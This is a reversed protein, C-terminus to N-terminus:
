TDRDVLAFRYSHVMEGDLYLRVEYRGTPFGNPNTFTFAQTGAADLTWVEAAGQMPVGGHFLVQAWPVGQAMDEYDVWVYLADTNAMLTRSNLQVAADAPQDSVGVVGLAAGPLPEQEAPPPTIGLARLPDPTPTPTVIPVTPRPLTPTPTASPTGEASTDLTPTPTETPLYSLAVGRVGYPNRPPFFADVYDFSYIVVGSFVSVLTTGGLMVLSIGLLRGGLKGADHRKRWMEATRQRWLNYFAVLLLLVSIGLLGGLLYPYYPLYPTLQRIM